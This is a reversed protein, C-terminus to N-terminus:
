DNWDNFLLNKEPLKFNANATRHNLMFCCVQDPIFLLNLFRCLAVYDGIVHM